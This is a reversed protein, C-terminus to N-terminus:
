QCAATARLSEFGSLRIGRRRSVLSLHQPHSVLSVPSVVPSAPFAPSVPTAPSVPSVLFVLHTPPRRCPSLRSALSTVRSLLGM